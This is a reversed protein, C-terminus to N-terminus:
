SLKLNYEPYSEILQEAYDKNFYIKPNYKSFVPYKNKTSKNEPDRDLFNFGALYLETDGYSLKFCEHHNSQILWEMFEKSEEDTAKKAHDLLHYRFVESKNDDKIMNFIIKFNHVYCSLIKNGILILPSDRNNIIVEVILNFKTKFFLEISNNRNTIDEKKM